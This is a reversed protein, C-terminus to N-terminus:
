CAWLSEKSATARKAEALQYLLFKRQINEKAKLQENGQNLEEFKGQLTELESKLSAM